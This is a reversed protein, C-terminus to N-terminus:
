IIVKKLRTLRKPPHCQFLKTIMINRGYATTLQTIFVCFNSNFDLSLSKTNGIIM